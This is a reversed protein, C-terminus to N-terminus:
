DRALPGEFVRVGNIVVEINDGAKPRTLPKIEEFRLFKRCNKSAPIALLLERNLLIQIPHNNQEPELKFKADVFQGKRKLHKLEVEGKGIGEKFAFKVEYEWLKKDGLLIIVALIIFFWGWGPIQELLQILNFEDM